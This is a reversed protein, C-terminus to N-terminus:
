ASSCMCMSDRNLGNQVSLFFTALTTRVRESTGGRTATEDSCCNLQWHASIQLCGYQFHAQWCCFQNHLYKVAYTHSNLTPPKVRIKTRQMNNTKHPCCFVVFVWFQM